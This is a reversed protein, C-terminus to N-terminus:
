PALVVRALDHFTPARRARRRRQVEAVGPEARDLNSSGLDFNAGSTTQEPM